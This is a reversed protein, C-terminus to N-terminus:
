LTIRTCVALLVIEVIQYHFSVAFFMFVYPSHPIASSGRSSREIQVSYVQTLSHTNFTQATLLTYGIKNNFRQRLSLKIDKVKM